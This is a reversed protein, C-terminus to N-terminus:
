PRLRSLNSTVTPQLCGVDVKWARLATTADVSPRVRPQQCDAGRSDKRSVGSRTGVTQYCSAKSATPRRGIPGVCSSVGAPRPPVKGLVEAVGRDLEPGSGLEDSRQSALRLRRDVPPRSLMSTAPRSLVCPGMKGGRTTSSLDVVGALRRRRPPCSWQCATRSPRGGRREISWDARGDASPRV